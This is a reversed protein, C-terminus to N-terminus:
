KSSETKYKQYKINYINLLYNYFEQQRLRWIETHGEATDFNIEKELSNHNYFSVTEVNFRADINNFTQYVVSKGDPKDICLYCRPPLSKIFQVYEEGIFGGFIYAGPARPDGVSSILEKQICSCGEKIGYIGGAIVGAFALVKSFKKIKNIMM